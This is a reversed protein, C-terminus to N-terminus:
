GRRLRGHHPRDARARAGEPTDGHRLLARGPPGMQRRQAGRHSRRRRGAGARRSAGHRRADAPHDRTGRAAVGCRRRSANASIRSADLAKDDAPRALVAGAVFLFAVPLVPLEWAWDLGAGVAFAFAAAFAATLERRRRRSSRLAPGLLAVLTGGVLAVILAFGVIGLEGLSELYLSHADVVEGPISGERTWWFRYAGAGIGVVPASDFARVAADWYQYRGNGSASGLRGSDQSVEPDKFREWGDSVEGPVGAAIGVAVVLAVAGAAVAAKTRGTPSPRRAIPLPYRDATATVGLRALGGLVCGVLVFLTMADGDANVELGDTFAPRADAALILAGTIVAGIALQPLLALRRPHLAILAVIGAAAAVAGGRSLTLYLVLGFVPLIATALARAVANRAYTAFHVLLPAGIAILTALGNWYNLPYNLRGRAAEILEATEDAPFLQPQLRSLLAAAAIVAIAAAVGALTLELRGRRSVAIALVLVGLYTSVRALEDASRAASESWIMSLGTWLAFAGLLLLAGRAARPLRTLGLIGGVAALLILGWVILGLRDRVIPDFGGGSFGLFTVLGFPVAFVAARQFRSAAVSGLADRHNPSASTERLASKPM